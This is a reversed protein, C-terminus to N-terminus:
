RIRPAVLNRRIETLLGASAQEVMDLVQEFGQAGGYYPDPVEAIGYDAAFRMFLQPKEKLGEPALQRLIAANDRDMALVYDFTEIDSRTVQRARLVDMEYGRRLAVATSRTDPPNGIHYAHTGASDIEIHTELGEDQVLKRFVAEATPSRCINGMCVFLVRMQPSSPM